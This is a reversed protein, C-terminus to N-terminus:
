RARTAAAGSRGLLELADPFAEDATMGRYRDLEAVLASFREALPVLREGGGRELEYASVRGAADRVVSLSETRAAHQTESRWRKSALLHPDADHHILAFATRRLPRGRDVARRVTESAPLGALSLALSFVDNIQFLHPYVRAGLGSGAPAKVILPIHLLEDQLSFAHGLEGYEGLLEGHDSVAIVLAREWDRNRRIADFLRALNRDVHAIEAAYSRRIHSVLEDTLPERGWSLNDRREQPLDATIGYAAKLDDPVLLPEHADFYNIFMFVPGRNRRRLWAIAQDTARQANKWDSSDIYRDFGQVFGISADTFPGGSIGLTRYGADRFIEALTGLEPQLKVSFGFREPAYRGTFLAAHAPMTWSTISTARDFRIGEAALKALAPTNTLEARYPTLYDPRVTDLSLLFVDPASREPVSAVVLDDARAALTPTKFSITFTLDIARGAFPALDILIPAWGNTAAGATLPQSTGTGRVAVSYDVTGDIAGVATEYTAGGQPVTISIEEVTPQEIVRGPRSELGIRLSGHSTYQDFAAAASSSLLRFGPTQVRALRSVFPAAPLRAVCGIALVLLACASGLVGRVLTRRLLSQPRGSSM